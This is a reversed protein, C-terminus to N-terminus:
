PVPNFFMKLGMILVGIFGTVAVTVFTLWGTRTGKQITLRWARTYAMDARYEDAEEDTKMHIGLKSFTAMVSKEVIKEIEESTLHESSKRKAAM